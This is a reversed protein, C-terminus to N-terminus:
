YGLQRIQENHSQTYSKFDINRWGKNKMWLAYAPGKDPGILRMKTDYVGLNNSLVDYGHFHDYLLVLAWGGDMFHGGLSYFNKHESMLKFGVESWDMAGVLVNQDNLDDYASSDFYSQAFFDTAAWFIDVPQHRELLTTVKATLGSANWDSNIVQKVVLLPNSSGASTLGEKRQRSSVSHHPGTVGLLNFKERQPYKKRALALMSTALTYGSNFENPSVNAIWYKYNQQPRGIKKLVDESLAVNVSIFPMKADEIIKLLQREVGLQYLAVVYDTPKPSSVMEQYKEVFSFRNEGAELLRYITLNIHLDEAVAQMFSEFDGWFLSNKAAPIM